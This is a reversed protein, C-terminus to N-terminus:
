LFIVTERNIRLAQLNAVELASDLYNAHGTYLSHTVTNM